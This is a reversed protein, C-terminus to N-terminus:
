LASSLLGNCDFGFDLAIGDSTYLGSGAAISGVAQFGSCHLGFGSAQARRISDSVRLGFGSAQARRISDSARLGTYDLRFRPFSVQM